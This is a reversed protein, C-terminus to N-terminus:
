QPPPERWIAGSLWIASSEGWFKMQLIIQSHTGKYFCSFYFLKCVRLLREFLILRHFQYETDRERIVRPLRSTDSTEASPVDVLPLFQIPSVHALRAMLLDLGSISVRRDMLASSQGGLACGDLLVARFNYLKCLNLKTVILLFFLNNKYYGVKIIWQIVEIFFFDRQAVHNLIKSNIGKLNM